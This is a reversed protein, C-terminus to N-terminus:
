QVESGVINRCYNFNALYLSMQRVLEEEMRQSALLRERFDITIEWMWCTPRQSYLIKQNSLLNTIIKNKRVYFYFM